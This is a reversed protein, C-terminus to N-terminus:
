DWEFDMDDDFLSCTEEDNCALDDIGDTSAGGVAALDELSALFEPISSHPLFVPSQSNTVATSQLLRKALRNLPGSHLLAMVVAASLQDDTVDKYVLPNDVVYLECVVEVRQARTASQWTSEWLFEHQIEETAAVCLTAMMIGQPATSQLTPLLNKVPGNYKSAYFSAYRSFRVFKEGDGICKSWPFAENGEMSPGCLPFASTVGGWTVSTPTGGGGRGGSEVKYVMAECQAHVNQKADVLEETMEPMVITFEPWTAQLLWEFVSLVEMIDSSVSIACVRAVTDVKSDLDITGDDETLQAVNIFVEHGSCDQFTVQLVPYSTRVCICAICGREASHFEQKYMSTPQAWCDTNPNGALSLFRRVSAQLSSVGLRNVPKGPLKGPMLVKAVPQARRFLRCTYSPLNECRPIPLPDM